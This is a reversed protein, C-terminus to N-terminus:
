SIYGPITLNKSRIFCSASTYVSHFKISIVDVSSRYFLMFLVHVYMDYIFKLLWLIMANLLMEKPFDQAGPYIQANPNRM